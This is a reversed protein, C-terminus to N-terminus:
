LRRRGLPWRGHGREAHEHGSEEEGAEKLAAFAAPLIEILDGAALPAEGM